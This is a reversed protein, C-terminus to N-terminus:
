EGLKAAAKLAQEAAKLMEPSATYAGNRDADDAKSTFLARGSRVLGIAQEKPVDPMQGIDQHVGGRDDGFNVLCSEIILMKM